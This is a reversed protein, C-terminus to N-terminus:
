FASCEVLESIVSITSLFIQLSHTRVSPYLSKLFYLSTFNEQTPWAPTYSNLKLRTLVRFIQHWRCPYKPLWMIPIILPTPFSDQTFYYVITHRWWIISLWISAQITFKISYQLPSVFSVWSYVKRFLVLSLDHNPHPIQHILPFLTFLSLISDLPYCHWLLRVLNVIKPTRHQLEKAM